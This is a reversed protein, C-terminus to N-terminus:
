IYTIEVSNNDITLRVNAGLVMALNEKLHGSPSDFAVPYKYESVHNYIIANASYGFPIANDNMSTMGGVILGSLQSLIDNRKLNLVMRDIHYLYEDLDELFLIKNKFSPLGTTGLVSYLVSLNGGILVGECQGSISEFSSHFKITYANKFLCRKLSELTEISKKPFDVPMDAHISAIELQQLKLHLATVDSYGVIWKPYKVLPQFDIRDLIRATGYGGKAIFIAKIEPDNVQQQFDLARDQDTGGFQNDKLGISSGIVVQLDWLKLLQISYELQAKDVFRATCVLATKDGKQLPQPFLM